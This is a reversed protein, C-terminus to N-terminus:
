RPYDILAFGHVEDLTRTRRAVCGGNSQSGSNGFSTNGEVTHVVGRKVDISEVEAVHVGRGFLVVGDGPRVLHPDTTWGRFGNRPARADDEILSVSAWRAPEPIKVGGKLASTVLFVGCWALGVLWTGLARQWDEVPKGRNSGPPHETVGVQARAWALAKAPAAAVQQHRYRRRMLALQAKARQYAKRLRRAPQGARTHFLYRDRLTHTKREQATLQRKSVPM